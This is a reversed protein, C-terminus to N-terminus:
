YSLKLFNECTIIHKFDYSKLFSTVLEVAGETDTRWLWEDEESGGVLFEYQYKYIYLRGCVPCRKVANSYYAFRVATELKSTYGDLSEGKAIDAELGDPITSCVECDETKTTPPNNPLDKIWQAVAKKSVPTVEISKIREEFIQTASQYESKKRKSSIIKMVPDDLPTFPKMGYHDKLIDYAYLRIDKTSGVMADFLITLYLQQREKDEFPKDYLWYLAGIARKRIDIPERSELVGKLYELVPAKTNMLILTYAYNVKLFATEEKNYLDLLFQYASESELEGLAWLWRRDYKKELAAKLMGEAIEKEEDSLGSVSSPDIMSFLSKSVDDKGFLYHEFKM